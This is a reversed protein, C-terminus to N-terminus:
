LPLEDTQQIYYVYAGPSRSADWTRAVSGEAVLELMISRSYPTRAVGVGRAIEGESSNPNEMVYVFMEHKRSERSVKIM